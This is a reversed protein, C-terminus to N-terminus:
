VARPGATAMPGSPGRRSGPQHTIVVSAFPEGETPEFRQRDFRQRQALKLCFRRV